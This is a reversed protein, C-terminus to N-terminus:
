RVAEQYYRPSYIPDIEEMADISWNKVGPTQGRWTIPDPQYEGAEARRLTEVVWAEKCHGCMLLGDEFRHFGFEGNPNKSTDVNEGCRLCSNKGVPVDELPIPQRCLQCTKDAKKWLDIKYETSFGVGLIRRKASPTAKPLSQHCKRCLVQLNSEDNNEPKHDQHHIHFTPMYVGRM